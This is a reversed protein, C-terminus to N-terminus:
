MKLPPWCYCVYLHNLTQFAVNMEEFDILFHLPFEAGNNKKIIIWLAVTYEINSSGSQSDARAKHILTKFYEEMQELNMRLIVRAAIIFICVEGERVISREDKMPTKGIM